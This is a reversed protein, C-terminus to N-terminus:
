ATLTWGKATAVGIQEATLKDLNVQGFKLTKNSVTALNNIVNMLSDVTLNPCLDLFGNKISVRLGKFGGLYTLNNLTSYGFLYNSSSSDSTLESFDILPISTLSTCGNFMCYFYSVSRKNNNFSDFFEEVSELNRCSSFLNYCDCGKTYSYKVFNFAPANVIHKNDAFLDRASYVPYKLLNSFDSISAFKCDCLVINMNLNDIINLSNCGNTCSIKLRNYELATNIDVDSFDLVCNVEKKQSFYFQMCYDYLTDAYKIQKIRYIIDTYLFEFNQTVTLSSRGSIFDFNVIADLVGNYTIWPVQTGYDSYNYKVTIVKPKDDMKIEDTVYIVSSSYAGFNISEVDDPIAWAFKKYTGNVGSQSTGNGCFFAYDKDQYTPLLFKIALNVENDNFDRFVDIDYVKEYDGWENKKIVELNDYWDFLYMNYKFPNFYIRENDWNSPDKYIKLGWNVEDFNAFNYLELRDWYYEFSDIKQLNDYNLLFSDEKPLDIYSWQYTNDDYVLHKLEGHEGIIRQIISNNNLEIIKQGDENTAYEYTQSDNNYIIRCLPKRQSISDDHYYFIYDTKKGARYLTNLGYRNNDNMYPCSNPGNKSWEYLQNITIEEKNSDSSGGGKAKYKDLSIIM